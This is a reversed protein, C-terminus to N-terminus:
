VRKTRLLDRGIGLVERALSARQSLLSRAVVGALRARTRVGAPASFAAALYGAHIRTLYAPIASLKAPDLDEQVARSDGIKSSTSWQHIRRHFLLRPIQYIKGWAAAAALVVMDAGDYSGHGSLARRLFETRGVGQLANTLRIRSVVRAFRHVADDDCVHMEDHYDRIPNGNVDILRSQGCCLVVDPRSELVRVCSEVMDRSCLDDANALKFYEGDAAAGLRRTNGASGVNVEHPFYRIRADSKAFQRCIEATGDTSANDYIRIEIAQYTQEVLCRLTEALFREGNYVPVAITVRPGSITM